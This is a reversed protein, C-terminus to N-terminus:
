VTAGARYRRILEPDLEEYLPTLEDKLFLERMLARRVKGSTTRRVQGPRLFVVNAVRLGLDTSLEGRIRGALEPLDLGRGRLEHMVVITEQPAPVTCVSGHLGRFGDHLGAVSREIDHPYLNRGRIILVDKIRGTVFLEGDFLVGLDGTRLFGGRGDTTTGRFSHATAEDNGWYGAAVSAGRVWIEGIRGEPLVESTDPDVVLVDLELPRGSSVLVPGEEAPTFVKQELAAADVPREVYSTGPPAATVMLTAEAMGYCPKFAEARFGAPAFREAFRTLTAAHVPESGNLACRWSSLDLRALQEDTVNRTCLDYAFNPASTGTVRHETMLELWRHPRRLFDTPSLLVTTAGLHLPLLLMGILGMDHHVPLWSCMRDSIVLGFARQILHLNHALAGHTVIVGKPESTSGSTYQLFAVADDSPRAPTWDVDDRPELEDTAAAPLEALGSEALEARVADLHRADTLALVVGADHAIGLSRGDQRQNVPAPAPVAALGAYFCALIAVAFDVGSPYRLLVRDGPACRELLWVALTRVERDLEAYTLGTSTQERGQDRVYILAEKDPLDQANRRLRSVIDTFMQNREM